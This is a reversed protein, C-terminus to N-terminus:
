AVKSTKRIPNLKSKNYARNQRKSKFRRKIVSDKDKIIENLSDTKSTLKLNVKKLEFTLSDVKKQLANFESVPKYKQCSVMLIFVVFVIKFNRM